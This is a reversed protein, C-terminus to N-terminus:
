LRTVRGHTICTIRHIVRSLKRAFADSELILFSSIIGPRPDFSVFVSNLASCTRLIMPMGDFLLDSICLWAAEAALM